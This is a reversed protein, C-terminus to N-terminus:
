KEEDEMPLVQIDLRHTECIPLGRLTSSSYDPHCLSPLSFALGSLFEIATMERGMDEIFEKNLDNYLKQFGNKMWEDVIDAPGDGWVLDSEPQPTSDRVVNVLGPKDSAKIGGTEVDLSWWGM